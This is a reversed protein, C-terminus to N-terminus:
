VIRAVTIVNNVVAVTLAMLSVIYGSELFRKVLHSNGTIMKGINGANYFLVGVLVVITLKIESFVLVNTRTLEAFLPNIEVAGFCLVGTVTTLWDLAGMLILAFCCLLEKKLM